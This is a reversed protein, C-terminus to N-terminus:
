LGIFNFFYFLILSCHVIHDLNMESPTKEQRGRCCRIKPLHNSVVPEIRMVIELGKGDHNCIKGLLTRGEGTRMCKM